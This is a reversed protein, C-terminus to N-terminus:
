RAFPHKDESAQAVIALLEKTEKQTLAVLGQYRAYTPFSQVDVRSSGGKKKVITEMLPFCSYERGNRTKIYLTVGHYTLTLPPYNLDYDLKAM